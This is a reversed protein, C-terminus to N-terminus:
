VCWSGVIGEALSVSREERIEVSDWHIIFLLVAKGKRGGSKTQLGLAPCHVCSLSM